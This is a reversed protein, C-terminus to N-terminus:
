HKNTINENLFIVQDNVDSLISNRFEIVLLQDSKSKKLRMKSM